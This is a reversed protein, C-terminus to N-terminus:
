HMEGQGWQSGRFASQKKSVDPNVRRVVCKHRQVGSDEAFRSEFSWIEFVSDSSTELAYTQMVSMKTYLFPTYKPLSIDGAIRRLWKWCCEDVLARTVSSTNKLAAYRVPQAEWTNISLLEKCGPRGLRYLPWCAPQVVSSNRNSECSPAVSKDQGCRASRIQYGCLRRHLLFRVPTREWPYPSLPTFSVM